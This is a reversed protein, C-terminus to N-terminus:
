RVFAKTEVVPVIQHAHINQSVKDHSLIHAADPLHLFQQQDNPHRRHEDQEVAEILEDEANIDAGHFPHVAVGEGFQPLPHKGGPFIGVNQGPIQIDDDTQSKAQEDLGSGFLLTNHKPHEQRCTRSTQGHGIGASGAENNGHNKGGIAHKLVPPYQCGANAYSYQQQHSVGHEILAQGRHEGLHVCGRFHPQGEPFAGHGHNLVMWEQSNAPAGVPHHVGFVIEIQLPGIDTDDMGM